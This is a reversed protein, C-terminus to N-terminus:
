NVSFNMCLYHVSLCPSDILHLNYSGCINQWTDQLKPLFFYRLYILTIILIIGCIISKFPSFTIIKRILYNGVRLIWQLPWHFLVGKIYTLLIVEDWLSRGNYVPWHSSMTSGRGHWLKLRSHGVGDVQSCDIVPLTM